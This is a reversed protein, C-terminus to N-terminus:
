KFLRLTQRNKSWNIRRGILQYTTGADFDGISQGNVTIMNGLPFNFDTPLAGIYAEIEVEFRDSDYLEQYADRTIDPDGYEPTQRLSNHYWTDIELDERNSDPSTPQLRFKRLSFAERRESSVSGAITSQSQVELNPSYTIYVNKKRSWVRFNSFYNDGGGLLDGKDITATLVEHSSRPPPTVPAIAGYRTIYFGIDEVASMADEIMEGSTKDGASYVGSSLTSAGVDHSDHFPADPINGDSDLDVFSYPYGSSTSGGFIYVRSNDLNCNINIYSAGFTSWLWNRAKSFSSFGNITRNPDISVQAVGDDAYVLRNDGLFDFVVVPSFASFDAAVDLDSLFVADGPIQTVDELPFDYRFLRRTFSSSSSVYLKRDGGVKINNWDLFGGPDEQMSANGNDLSTIDWASSMPVQYLEKNSGTNYDLFMLLYEGDPDFEICNFSASVQSINSADNIASTLDAEISNYSLEGTSSIDYERLSLTKNSSDWWLAFAKGSGDGDRIYTGLLQDSESFYFTDSPPDIKKVYKNCIINALRRPNSQFFSEARNIGVSLTGEPQSVLEILGYFKGGEDVSSFDSITLVDGNDRVEFDRDVGFGDSSRPLGSSFRYRNTSQDVLRVPISWLRGYAVPSEQSGVIDSLGGRDVDLSIAVQRNSKKFQVDSVLGKYIPIFRNPFDDELFSWRTDGRYVTFRRDILDPGSLIGDFKGDGNAMVIDDFSTGDYQEDTIIDSVICHVPAPYTHHYKTGDVGKDYYPKDTLTLRNAASGDGRDIVMIHCVTAPAEREWQRYQELPTM